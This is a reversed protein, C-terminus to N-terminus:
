KLVAIYFPYNGELAQGKLCHVCCEEYSRETRPRRCTQCGPIKIDIERDKTTEEMSDSHSLWRELRSVKKLIREMLEEDTIGFINQVHDLIISVDAFEDIVKERLEATAEEKTDYRPYKALVCALENLEEIAVLIQNNDGYTERATKLIKQIKIITEETIISKSM